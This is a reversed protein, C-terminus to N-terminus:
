FANREKKREKKASDVQIPHSFILSSGGTCVSDFAPLALAGRAPCRLAAPHSECAGMRSAGSMGGHTLTAHPAAGPRSRSTLWVRPEAHPLSNPSLPRLPEPCVRAWLLATELGALVARSEVGRLSVGCLALNLLLGLLGCLISGEEEEQEKEGM